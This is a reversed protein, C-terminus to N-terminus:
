AAPANLLTSTRARGRLTELQHSTLARGRLTELQHSSLV